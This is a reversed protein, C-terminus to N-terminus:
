ATAAVPVPVATITATTTAKARFWDGLWFSLLGAPGGAGSLVVLVGASGVEVTVSGSPAGAGVTCGGDVVVRGESWCVLVALGLGVVVVVLVPVVMSLMRVVTGSRWVM